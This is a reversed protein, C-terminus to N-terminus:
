VETNCKGKECVCFMSLDVDGEAEIVAPLGPLQPHILKKWLCCHFMETVACWLLCFLYVM